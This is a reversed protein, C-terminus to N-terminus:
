GVQMEPGQVEDPHEWEGVMQIELELTVGSVKAVKKRALEILMYVDEASAAGHNIFFNAHLMSIEADGKRAGKLGAAEILRGAYDGPPNKFMSGMSAGPPQTQRRNANFKDMENRIVEPNSHQLAFTAALILVRPFHGHKEDYLRDKLISSRYGFSFDDVDWIEKQGDHHLIEAMLLTSAVDGGHAGANGFVAGGVTGPIGVAWELGSLGKTAVQRALVGFNTGSSAWAKPPTDDMDFLVDRARNLLVVGRVGNDSVLVNSGGGLIIFPVELDWLYTATEELEEVTTVELLADAPGGVRAATFPALPVNMRLKEGFIKHIPDIMSSQNKVSLTPAM